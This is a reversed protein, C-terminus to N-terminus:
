IWKKKKLGLIKLKKENQEKVITTHGDDKGDYFTDKLRQIKLLQKKM